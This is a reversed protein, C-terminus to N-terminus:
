QGGFKSTLGDLQEGAKEKIQTATDENIVEKGVKENVTDAVADIAENAKDKLGGLDIPM